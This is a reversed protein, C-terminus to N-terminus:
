TFPLNPFVTPVADAHLKPIDRPIKVVDNGVKIEFDRIVHHAAFHLECVRDVRSLCRDARPIAAAWQSLKDVPPTFLSLPRGTAKASAYGTKCGPVFCHSNGPM